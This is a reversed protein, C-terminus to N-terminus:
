AKRAPRTIKTPNRRHSRNRGFASVILLLLARLTPMPDPGAVIGGTEAEPFKVPVGDGLLGTRTWPRWPGASAPRGEPEARPEDAVSMARKRAGSASASRPGIRLWNRLSKTFSGTSAAHDGCAVSQSLDYM